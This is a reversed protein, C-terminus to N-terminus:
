KVGVIGKRKLIEHEELLIFSIILAVYPMFYYAFSVYFTRLTKQIFRMVKIGFPALRTLNDRRYIKIDLKHGACTLMKHQSLSGFFFKPINAIASLAVYGMIVKLSNSFSCLVMIVTVEIGLSIVTHASAVFFAIHVNTFNQYHNVAYKMMHLGNTVDKNINLHMMM